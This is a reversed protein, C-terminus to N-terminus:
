TREYPAGSICINNRTGEFYIANGRLLIANERFIIGNERFVKQKRSISNRELSITM